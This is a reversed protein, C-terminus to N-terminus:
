DIPVDTTVVSIEFNCKCINTDLLLVPGELELVVSHILVQLYQKLLNVFVTYM